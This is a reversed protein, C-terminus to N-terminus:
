HVICLMCAILNTAGGVYVGLILSSVIGAAAHMCRVLRSDMAIYEPVCYVHTCM